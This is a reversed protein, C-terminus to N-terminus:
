ETGLSFVEGAKLQPTKAEEEDASYEIRPKKWYRFYREIIESGFYLGLLCALLLLIIKQFLVFRKRKDKGSIREKIKIKIRNARRSESPTTKKIEIIEGETELYDKKNLNM